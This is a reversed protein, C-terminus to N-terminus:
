KLKLLNKEQKLDDSDCKMHAQRAAHMANLNNRIIESTIEDDLAPPKDTQLSPITPNRGFVMQFPSFGHVNSLSNHAAVCWTVAMELSCGTDARTKTIMSGLIQNHREVLGNSWPSYAATTKINIGLREGLEIMGPNSFEGGNDSLIQDPVGYISICQKFVERLVVEPKKSRIVAGASLRTASDIIHLLHVKSFQKLDMAVCQGFRTALPFGVIPRPPTRKYQLCIKCEKSVKKIEEILEQNDTGQNKILRILREAPPHAFQRHLKIAVQQNTMHSIHVTHGIVEAYSGLLIKCVEM